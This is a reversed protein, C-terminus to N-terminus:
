PSPGNFDIFFPDPQMRKLCDTELPLAAPSEIFQEILAPVCGLAAIGHGFDQMIIHQHRGLHRAVADAYAPPTIPDNSGSLLLTPKDSIVPQKFDADLVGKPWQRCIDLLNDFFDKGMYSRELAAIDVNEPKAFPLDETCVVSAHMGTSISHAFEELQLTRRALPSFNNNAYAEHLVLPLITASVPSYLSLRILAAVHERTLEVDQKRGSAFNEVQISKGNKLLELLKTIGAALDPYAAACDTAAQCRVLLQQLARDSEMAVDVGLSLEPYVVGDLIMSRVAQPYRRLYHLAVRSGYSIGYLNWQTIGLARRVREIDRVAVSTTYFRPDGPLQSLCDSVMEAPLQSDGKNVENILPCQMANSKGTGRQDILYVDRHERVRDLVKHMAFLLSESAASGPGGDIALVPDAVPTKTTSKLRVIFLNLPPADAALENETTRLVGCQANLHQVRSRDSLRCPTFAIDGIRKKVKPRTYTVLEFNPFLSDTGESSAVAGQLPITAALLLFCLLPIKLCFQRRTCPM